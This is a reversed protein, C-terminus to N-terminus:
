LGSVMMEVSMMVLKGGGDDGVVRGRWESLHEEEDLVLFRNRSPLHSLLLSELENSSGELFTKVHKPLRSNVLWSLWDNYCDLPIDDLEWWRLVKSRIQRALLCSFCIHSTSEAAANCLPCFITPIDIGKISLNFRTPIKDLYVRWALINVKIPIIKIGRTPVGVSPLLTDDIVRRASKVLFLGAVADVNDEQTSDSDESDHTDHNEFELRNKEM